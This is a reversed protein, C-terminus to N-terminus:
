EGEIPDPDNINFYYVHHKDGYHMVYYGDRVNYNDNWRGRSDEIETHVYKAKGGAVDIFRHASPDQIIRGPM